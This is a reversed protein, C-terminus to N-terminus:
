EDGRSGGSDESTNTPDQQDDRQDDQQEGDAEPEYLQDGQGESPETQRGADQEAEEQHEGGERDRGRDSSASAVARLCRRAAAGGSGLAPNTGCPEPRGARGSGRAAMRERPRLRERRRWPAAPCYAQEIDAGMRRITFGAAPPPLAPRIAGATSCSSRACCSLTRRLSVRSRSWARSSARSAAPLPSITTASLPSPMTPAM